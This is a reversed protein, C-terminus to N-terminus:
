GPLSRGHRAPQIDSGFRVVKSRKTTASIKTTTSISREFGRANGPRFFTFAYVAILLTVALSRSVSQQPVALRKMNVQYKGVIEAGIRLADSENVNYTSLGDIQNLSLKRTFARLADRISATTTGLRDRSIVSASSALGYSGIRSLTCATILSRSSM